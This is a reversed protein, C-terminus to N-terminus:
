FLTWPHVTVTLAYPGTAHRAYFLVPAKYVHDIYQHGPQNMAEGEGKVDVGVWSGNAEQTATWISLDDGAAAVTAYHYEPPFWGNSVVGGRFLVVDGPQCNVPVGLTAELTAM